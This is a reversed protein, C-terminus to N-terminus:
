ETIVIERLGIGLVREDTSNGIEKPSVATPIEFAITIPEGVGPNVFDFEIDEGIRHMQMDTYYPGSHCNACGHKEYVKRGQIAKESLEGNVLYPSPLPKLSKIYADVNLAIDEPIIKPSREHFRPM